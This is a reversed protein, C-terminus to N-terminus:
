DSHVMGVLNEIYHISKPTEDKPCFLLSISFDLISVMMSNDNWKDPETKLAISESHCDNIFKDLTLRGKIIWTDIFIDDNGKPVDTINDIFIMRLQDPEDFHFEFDGYKIIAPSISKSNIPTTSWDDPQGLVGILEGRSWSRSLSVPGFQGFKLFDLLSVNIMKM